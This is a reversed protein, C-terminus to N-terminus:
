ILNEFKSKGVSTKVGKMMDDLAGNSQVNGKTDTTLFKLADALHTFQRKKVAKVRGDEEVFEAGANAKRYADVAKPITTPVGKDKYTPPITINNTGFTLKIKNEDRDMKTRPIEVDFNNVRDNNIPIDFGLRGLQSVISKQVKRVQGVLTDENNQTSNYEVSVSDLEVPESQKPPTGYELFHKAVKVTRGIKMTSFASILDRNPDIPDILSFVNQENRKGEGHKDVIDGEKLSSFFKLTDEFTDFKDILVEASYGSFGQSKMSSDYLGTDKMFQKLMRVEHEKGKLAEKMYKTQHPTREMGISIPEGNLTKTKIQELTLHRTPVIQVEMQQGKHEFFAEAYRSTADQIYPNKGDLAHMGIKIGLDEREEEDVDTNFVVFIDLDSGSTPLDTGKEYSGQMAVEKVKDRIGLSNIKDWIKGNIEEHVEKQLARVEKNPEVRDKLKAKFDDINGGGKATFEGDPARPHEQEVFVENAKLRAVYQLTQVAVDYKMGLWRAMQHALATIRKEDLGYQNFLRLAVAIDNENIMVEHGGRIVVNGLKSLEKYLHKYKSALYINKIKMETLPIKKDMRVEMQDMYYSDMVGDKKTENYTSNNRWWMDYTVVEGKKRVDDGDYEIVVGKAYISAINKIPTVATFDYYLHKHIESEEKGTGIIGDKLYDELEDIDTGRFFSESKEFAEKSKENWEDVNKLVKDFGEKIKPNKEGLDKWMAKVNEINERFSAINYGGLTARIWDNTSWGSAQVGEMKGTYSLKEKGVFAYAEEKLTDIDQKTSEYEKKLKVPSVKFPKKSAGGKATFEGDPARPHELEQFAENRKKKISMTRTHAVEGSEDYSVVREYVAEEEVLTPSFEIDLLTRTESIPKTLDEM